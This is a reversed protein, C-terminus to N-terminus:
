AKGRGVGHVSHEQGVTKPMKRGIRHPIFRKFAEVCQWFVTFTVVVWKTVTIFRYSQNFFFLFVHLSNRHVHLLPLFIWVAFVRLICVFRSPYLLAALPLNPHRNQTREHSARAQFTPFVAVHMEVCHPRPPGPSSLLCVAFFCRPRSLGSRSAVQYCVFFVCTHLCLPRILPAFVCLFSLWGLWGLPVAKWKAKGWQRIALNKEGGKTHRHTHPSPLGAVM